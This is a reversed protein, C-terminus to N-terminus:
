SAPKDFPQDIPVARVHFGRPRNEDLPEPPTEAAPAEADRVKPAGQDEIVSVHARPAPFSAPERAEGALQELQRKERRRRLPGGPSRPIDGQGM